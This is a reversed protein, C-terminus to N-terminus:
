RCYVEVRSANCIIWDLYRVIRNRLHRDRLERMMFNNCVIDGNSAGAAQRRRCIKVHWMQNRRADWWGGRPALHTPRPTEDDCENAQGKTASLTNSDCTLRMKFSCAQRQCRTPRNFFVACRLVNVNVYKVHRISNPSINHRNYNYCSNLHGGTILKHLLLLM